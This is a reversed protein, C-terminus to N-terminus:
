RKVIGYRDGVAVLANFLAEDTTEFLSGPFDFKTGDELTIVETPKINKVLAFTKAGSETPADEAVLAAAPSVVPAPALIEEVNAVSIPESM